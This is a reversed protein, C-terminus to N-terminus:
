YSDSLEQNLKEVLAGIKLFAETDYVTGDIKTFILEIYPSPAFVIGMDHFAKGEYIFGFKHAVSHKVAKPIQLSYSCSKMYDILMSGLVTDKQNYIDLMFSAMERIKCTTYGGSPIKFDVGLTSAYKSFGKTGFRELLMAYATNDSRTIMYKILEKVTFQSGIPKNKLVGSGTFVHRKEMTLKEELDVSNKLLFM